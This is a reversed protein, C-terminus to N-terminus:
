GEPEGAPQWRYRVVGALAFHIFTGRESTRVLDFVDGRLFVYSGQDVPRVTVDALTVRRREIVYISPPAHDLPVRIGALPGGEFVGEIM